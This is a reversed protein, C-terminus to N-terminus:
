CSFAFGACGESFRIINYNTAVVIVEPYVFEVVRREEFERLLGIINTECLDNQYFSRFIASNPSISGLIFLDMEKAVFVKKRV